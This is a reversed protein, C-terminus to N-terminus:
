TLNTLQTATSSGATGQNDCLGAHNSGITTVSRTGSTRDAFERREAKTAAGRLNSRVVLYYGLVSCHGWYNDAVQPIREHKPEQIAISTASVLLLTGANVVRNLIMPTM